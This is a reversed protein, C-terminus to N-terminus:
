AKRFGRIAPVLADQLAVYYGRVREIKPFLKMLRQGKSNLFVINGKSTYEATIGKSELIPHKTM